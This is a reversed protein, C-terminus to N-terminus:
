IAHKAVIGWYDDGDVDFTFAQLEAKYSAVERAIAEVDFDEAYEGLSIIVDGIVDNITSYTQAM